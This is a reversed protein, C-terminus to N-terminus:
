PKPSGEQGEFSATAVAVVPNWKGPWQSSRPPGTGTRRWAPELLDYRRRGASGQDRRHIRRRVEDQDRTLVAGLIQDVRGLVIKVDAELPEPTRRGHQSRHVGRRDGQEIYRQANGAEALGIVKIKAHQFQTSTLLDDM